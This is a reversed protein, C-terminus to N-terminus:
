ALFDVFFWDKINDAQQKTIDLTIPYNGGISIGAPVADGQDYYIVAGPRIYGDKGFVESAKRMTEPVAIPQKAAMQAVTLLTDETKHFLKVDNIAKIAPSVPYKKGGARDWVFIAYPLSRYGSEEIVRRDAVDVYFSAFPMEANRESVGKANKRRFVAHLMELERGRSVATKEANWQDRIRESMAKLGFRSVANEVSMYFRRFVTEYENHENTDLYIEPADIQKYRVANNVLDEDVSMIGFGFTTAQEVV